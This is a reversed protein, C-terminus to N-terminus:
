HKRPKLLLGVVGLIIGAIIIPWEMQVIGFIVFLLAMLMLIAPLVMVNQKTSRKGLAIYAKAEALKQRKSPWDQACQLQEATPASEEIADLRIGTTFLEDDLTVLQRKVFVIQQDCNTINGILEHMEEKQLSVDSECLITVAEENKAGLRDLLRSKSSNLEDLKNETTNVASRWTHWDSEKALLTDIKTLRQSDISEPLRTKMDILEEEIRRKSAEAETLKISFSEFRRIGDPPFSVM